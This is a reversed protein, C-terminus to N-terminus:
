FFSYVLFLHLQTEKTISYGMEKNESTEPKNKSKIYSYIHKNLFM